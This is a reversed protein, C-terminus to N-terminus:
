TANPTRTLYLNPLRLLGRSRWLAEVSAKPRVTLNVSHESPAQDGYEAARGGSGNGSPEEVSISVRPSGDPRARELKRRSCDHRCGQEDDFAAEAEKVTPAHRAGFQM